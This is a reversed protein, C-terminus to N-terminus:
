HAVVVLVAGCGTGLSTQMFVPGYGQAILQEVTTDSCRAHLADYVIYRKGYAFVADGIRYDRIRGFQTYAHGAFFLPFGPLSRIGTGIEERGTIDTYPEVAGFMELREYCFDVAPCAFPTATPAPTTTVPPILTVRATPTPTTIPAPAPSACGALLALAMCIQM